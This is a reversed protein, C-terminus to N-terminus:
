LLLLAARSVFVVLCLALTAGALRRSGLAALPLLWVVYYPMLWATSLLLAITGWGAADVWDHGRAVRVLLWGAAALFLVAGGLRASPGAGGEGILWGALYPLSLESVMRGQAGLTRAFGVLADAGFATVWVMLVVAGAGLAGAMARRRAGPRGSAGVFLFPLVLGGTVKVAAAAVVAGAAGVQRGAGALLVGVLVLLMTISDNHAGGVGYVLLLPNLGVFLAALVPSRGRARAARAVLAVCGLSAAATAGKLTWLAAPLGLPALPYTALTFLPGYPDRLDRFSVFALVPDGPIAAPPNVYPSLGHTIGLRAYAIYSFVDPTVIPPALAWALHAAGVAWLAVPLSLRRHAALTVAYGVSMTALLAVFAEPALAPAGLKALPGAVWAPFATPSGSLYRTGAAAGAAAALGALVAVALALPGALRAM